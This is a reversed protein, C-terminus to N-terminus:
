KKTLVSFDEEPKPANEGRSANNEVSLKHVSLVIVFVLKKISKANEAKEAHASDSESEAVTNGVSIRLSNSMPYCCTKKNRESQSRNHKEKNYVDSLLLMETQKGCDRKKNECGEKHNKCHYALARKHFHHRNCHHLNEEKHNIKCGNYFCILTILVIFFRGWCSLSDLLNTFFDYGGTLRTTQEGRFPATVPWRRFVSAKM